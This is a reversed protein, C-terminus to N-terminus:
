PLQVIPPDGFSRFPRAYRKEGDPMVIMLLTVFGFDSTCIDSWRNRDGARMQVELFRGEDLLLHAPVLSPDDWGAGYKRKGTHKEKM